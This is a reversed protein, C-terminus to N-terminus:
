ETVPEEGSLALHQSWFKCVANYSNVQGPAGCIDVVSPATPHHAAERNIFAVNMYYQEGPQLVCRPSQPVAGPVKWQLSGTQACGQRGISWTVDAPCKSFFMMPQGNDPNQTIFGYTWPSGVAPVTIQLSLVDVVTSTPIPNPPVFTVSSGLPFEHGRPGPEGFPKGSYYQEWTQAVVNLGALPPNGGACTPAEQVQLTVQTSAAVSGNRNCILRFNYNGPNASAPITVAFPQTPSSPTVTQLSWTTGPLNPQTSMSCSDTGANFNGITWQFAISSGAVVSTGPGPQTISATLAPVAQGCNVTATPFVVNGTDLDIAIITGGIPTGTGQNCQVVQAHVTPAAVLALALLLGRSNLISM